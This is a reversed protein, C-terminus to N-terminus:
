NQSALIARCIAEAITEGKGAYTQYQALDWIIEFQVVYKKGDFVRNLTFYPAFTDLIKVAAANDTSYPLSPTDPQTRRLVGVVKADMEPGIPLNAEM